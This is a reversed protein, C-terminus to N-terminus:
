SQPDQMKSEGQRLWIEDFSMSRMADELFFLNVSDFAKAFDLKLIIGRCKKQLISHVADNAILIGDFINHRSIFGKQHESILIQM